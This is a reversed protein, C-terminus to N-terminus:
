PIERFTGDFLVEELLLPNRRKIQLRQMLMGAALPEAALPLIHEVVPARPEGNFCVSTAEDADFM